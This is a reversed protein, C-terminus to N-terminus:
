EEEAGEAEEEQAEVYRNKRNRKLCNWRYLVEDMDMDGELMLNSLGPFMVSEMRQYNTETCNEYLNVLTVQEDTLDDLWQQSNARLAGIVQESTSRFEYQVKWEAHQEQAVSGRGGGHAVFARPLAKETGHDEGHGNVEDERHEEDEEKEARYLGPNKGPYAPQLPFYQAEGDHEHDETGEEPADHHGLVM